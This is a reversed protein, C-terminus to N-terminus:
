SWGTGAARAVRLLARLSAPILSRVCRRTGRMRSARSVLFSAMVLGRNLSTTGLALCGGSGRNDVKLLDAGPVGVCAMDDGAARRGQRRERVHPLCQVVREAVRGREGRLDRPKGGVELARPKVAGVQAGRHAGREGRVGVALWVRQPVEPVLQVRRLRGRRGRPPRAHGGVAPHAPLGAECPAAAELRHHHDVGPVREGLGDAHQQRPPGPPVAGLERRQAHDGAQHRGGPPQVADPRVPPQGDRYQGAHGRPRHGQEARPPSERRQELANVRGDGNVRGPYPKGGRRRDARETGGSGCASTIPATIKDTGHHACRRRRAFTM